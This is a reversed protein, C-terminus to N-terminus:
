GTRGIGAVRLADVLRAALEPPYDDRRFAAEPDEVFKPYSKSLLAVLEDARHEDGQWHAVVLQAVVYQWKNSTAFAGVTESAKDLDGTMFRALFLCYNWWSPHVVSGDIARQLVTAGDRYNGSFVLVYGYAAAGNLDFTNLEYAKRMWEIAEPRNGMKSHLYGMTRYVYPNTPAIQVARRMMALTEEESPLPPYAYKEVKASVRLSALSAYVMPSRAHADALKEFCRYATFHRQETWELYFADSLILCNVLGSQLGNQKLYGYIVGNVPAVANVLGAVRSELKESVIDAASLRRNILVRGSGLSQLELLVGGGTVAAAISLVFGARDTPLSRPSSWYEGGILNITEFGALATRLQTAVRSVAPSDGMAVIRITPLAEQGPSGSVDSVPASGAVSTEGNITPEISAMRVAMLVLMTTVLALAGWLLRVEGVGVSAQLRERPRLGTVLAPIAQFSAVAHAVRAAKQPLTTSPPLSVVITEYAPVYSGLPISIRVPDARGEDLYYQALLERLRGAQVRVAADASSDFEQDKGFVDVGITYGKLREAEGAQEREVLYALLSRARESRRFTRSALIRELMEGATPAVPLDHKM